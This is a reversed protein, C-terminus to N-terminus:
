KKVSRKRNKTKHGFYFFGNIKGVVRLNGNESSFEEIKLDNGEVAICGGECEAEVVSDSFAIVDMIGTIELKNRNHLVVDQQINTENVM